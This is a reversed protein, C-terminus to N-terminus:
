AYSTTYVGIAQSNIKSLAFTLAMSSVSYCSYLSHYMPSSCGVSNGSPNGATISPYMEQQLQALQEVRRM